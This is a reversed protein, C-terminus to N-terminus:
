RASAAVPANLVDGRGLSYYEFGSERMHAPDYLNRGDVIVPTRMLSRLRALELSRFENWDTLILLAHAGRAAEYASGVYSLRDDPPHVTAMRTAAQPDYVRVIIGSEKLRPIVRLSPAERIDDTNAKFAVGLVGVTKDGMVWLAQELKKLLREVRAENIREVERLLSFDVGLEEAIRVFAKLDKRFCSGGFGLGANLFHPGIRHDLGIANAVTSVDGGVKGCLDSIMNIFSIKTALFANATHKILEAMKVSTVVIPCDFDGRYLELLLARARESDAGIVIRDPHLFDQIASGERLFEPNSAVEYEGDSGITKRIARDICWATNVPVTSKEVIVKYGDLAPAISRVVADVQSLDARGDAQSPTGVCIFVIDAHRLGDEVSTTFTLRDAELNSALLERLGPEYLTPVGDALKAVIEPNKEVAVVSHGLEAFCVSTVLGVYGTGFIGLKM